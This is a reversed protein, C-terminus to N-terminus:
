LVNGSMAPGSAIIPRPRQRQSRETMNSKLRDALKLTQTGSACDLKSGIDTPLFAPLCSICRGIFAAGERGADEVAFM